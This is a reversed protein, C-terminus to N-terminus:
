DVVNEKGGKPAECVEQHFKWQKKQCEKSCYKRAKCIGCSQLEGGGAAEKAGCGGCVDKSYKSENARAAKLEELGATSGMPPNYLLTGPGWVNLSTFGMANPKADVRESNATEVLGPSEFDYPKGDKYGNPGKLAKKIQVLADSPLGVCMYVKQMTTKYRKPITCGLTMACAGLLMFIYGPERLFESQGDLMANEYKSLM